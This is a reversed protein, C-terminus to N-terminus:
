EVRSMTARAAALSCSAPRSTSCTVGIVILKAPSWCVISRAKRVSMTASSRGVQLGRSPKVVAVNM